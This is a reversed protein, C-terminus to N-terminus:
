KEAFGVKAEPIQNQLSAAVREISEVNNHLYYAQGGRRLERRIADCIIGQDHELVYTQVPHRDHPAEEIVSMDRIGSLAMNLTRPIPTASLTLVDVNKYSDKLREKQAVGFRQEEDVILLGLNHFQVDKSVLRHTGVIMDIEGRKLRKLIDEQQKPTRFRSLLEIRVPFGEMRKSINQYHQWALITTPVLLACQCSDSVCKFAARLAVETKGFGVDGCLLRDMPSSLEMDHKIEKICRLQDETEEFEFHAEFDRQWETDPSFAHGKAQMRQAYLRILEKAMDKVAARVRAKTKQWDQGGLKSLKVTADERPGIYKSVLDLQTVPVYLTDKKAYRVKIYDKVVGQMNIKHIGEFVGIGHSAHVIYDGVTLESLSYLEQAHKNKRKKAAAKGTHRGHTIIGFGAAPFEMGASLTGTTIIVGKDPIESMDPMYVVSLGKEKLDTAINSATKETGGLVICTLGSSQMAQLDEELLAISGGWVSLQRATINLLTRVPVEYTGRVFAELCVTSRKELQSQIYIWDGSYTDLGRCLVGEELYEKVDEAWQWQTTRIREKGKHFESVFVLTDNLSFYDLLTATRDYLMTIYKDACHFHRGNRLQDCEMQLIEKAKPATKGRLSSAHKEIKDALESPNDVLVEVSPALMIADVTETRRQSELDFLGITDIEDGWFEIRVPYPADPTFFDLIGGRVAFQGTGDIQEARVYGCRVLSQVVQELSVTQGKKLEIMRGELENPPITYQLAADMCAVVVDCDHKLIRSLVQIRQHEYERSASEVNRFTFDRTPYIFSRLGMSTLDQCIRQAEAEDAALLLATKNTDQVLANIITAKHIGSLGTAVAPLANSEVAQRLQMYEPLKHMGAKLFNM